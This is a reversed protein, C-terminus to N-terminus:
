VTHRFFRALRADLRVLTDADPRRERRVRALTAFLALAEDEPVGARTAAVRATEPSFDPDPLRLDTRLRDLAVRAM